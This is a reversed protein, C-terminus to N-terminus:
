KRVIDYFGGLLTILGVSGLSMGVFPSSTDNYAQVALLLAVMGAVIYIFPLESAYGVILLLVYAVILLLVVDSLM